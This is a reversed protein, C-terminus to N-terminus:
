RFVFFVFVRRSANRFSSLRIIDCSADAHGRSRGPRCPTGTAHAAAVPELLACDHRCPPLVGGGPLGSTGRADNRECRRTEPRARSPFVRQREGRTGRFATFKEQFSEASGRTEALVRLQLRAVLARLVKSWESISHGASARARRRNGRTSAVHARAREIFFCAQTTSAGSEAHAHLLTLKLPVDTRSHRRGTTFTGGRKVRTLPRRQPADRSHKARATFHGRPAPAVREPSVLPFFFASAADSGCVAVRSM